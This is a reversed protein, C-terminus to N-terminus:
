TDVSATGIRAEEAELREAPPVSLWYALMFAVIGGGIKGILLPAIMSPQFNATFALHDGFAFAACVAFAITLVKDKARMDGVLRFLAIVNALTALIGAAGNSELGVRHGIYDMPRALYKQILYVMPFAGALMIGIYGAIELARFQDEEDAIIPDFGWGGFIMSFLGTFYEVISFVLVLTIASYLIKGFWLFGRTMADPVFRLGLAIAVCFVILPLLNVLIMGMTLGVAHVPAASTSIVDRVELNTFAMLASTIFVGVPVSLIGAMIGLAMYKHDKKALMALGVPISFVITAGAMYGVVTAMIWDDVTGALAEALHYGGMDVAIITTAAISADAGILEFLPGVGADIAASLYPISAMIGAVPVFIPGMAYIGQFFERGLGKEDDRISAIAGAVACAMLIYIVITGIVAMTTDGMGSM